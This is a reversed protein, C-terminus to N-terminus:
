PLNNLVKILNRRNKADLTISLEDLLLIDPNMSLASAICVLKKEGGSLGYTQRDKLHLIGIKELANCVLTDVEPLQYNRPAFAIDDYVNPM